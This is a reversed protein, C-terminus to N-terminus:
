RKLSSFLFSALTGIGASEIGSTDFAFYAGFGVVCIEVITGFLQGWEFSEIKGDKLANELWGAISRFGGALPIALLTIDM